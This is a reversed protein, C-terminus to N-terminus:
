GTRGSHASHNSCGEERAQRERVQINKDKKWSRM